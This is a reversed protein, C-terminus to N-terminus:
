KSALSLAVLEGENNRCYIVGDALVPQVWCRGGIVKKRGLEAFARDSASALILEGVESLIILKDGALILSGNKIEKNNWKEDGTKADLCILSSRKGVEGHIGFIAGGRHVPSNFHAMLKKTFWVQTTKGDKVRIACAGHNYASSIVILDGVVLPTAANVKWNTQWEHRWLVTGKAADHGVLANAKFVLATRKGDVQAIHVSGYGAEEDGAKWVLDGTKKNLAITSAGPGGCDILVNEGDITPSSCFGWDMRKAGFDRVLDKSWVPEGSSAEVCAVHGDAGVMFVRQGSITPTGRPGGEFLYDGLKAPWPHAWLENGTKADLCQLVENGNKYGATFVRGGAVTVSSLGTGLKARWLEKPGNSPWATITETTSGDGKPGRYHHWEVALVQSAFFVLAAILKM